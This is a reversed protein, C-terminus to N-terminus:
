LNKKRTRPSQKPKNEKENDLFSFNSLHAEKSKNQDILQQSTPDLVEKVKGRNNRTSIQKQSVKKSIDSLIERSEKNSHVSYLKGNRIDFGLSNLIDERFIEEKVFRQNLDPNSSIVGTDEELVLFASKREGMFKHLFIDRELPQWSGSDSHKRYVNQLAIKETCVNCPIQQPFTPITLSTGKPVAVLGHKIKGLVMRRNGDYVIPKGQHYVVTPLESLDYYAGMERSLKSLTWKLGRDELARNVIDQDSANVDIPDRPNETWLVLDKIDIYKVQQEEM